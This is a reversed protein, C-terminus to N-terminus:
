LMHSSSAINNALSIAIAELCDLNYLITWQTLMNCKNVLKDRTFLDHTTEQNSVDYVLKNTFVKTSNLTVNRQSYARNSASCEIIM